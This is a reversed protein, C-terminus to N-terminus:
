SGPAPEETRGGLERLWYNSERSRAERRLLFVRTARYACIIGAAVAVVFIAVVDGTSM